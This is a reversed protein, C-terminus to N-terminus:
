RQSGARVVQKYLRLGQAFWSEVQERIRERFAAKRKRAYIAYSVCAVAKGARPLPVCAGRRAQFRALPRVGQPFQFRLLRGQSFQCFRLGFM